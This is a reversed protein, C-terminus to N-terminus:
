LVLTKKAVQNVTITIMVLSFHPKINTFVFRFQNLTSLCFLELWNQSGRNGCVWSVTMFFLTNLFRLSLTYLHKHIGRPHLSRGLGSRRCRNWRYSRSSIGVLVWCLLDTERIQNRTRFDIFVVNFGFFSLLFRAPCSKATLAVSMSEPM